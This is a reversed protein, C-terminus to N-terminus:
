SSWNVKSDLQMIRNCLLYMTAIMMMLMTMMGMQSYDQMHFVAEQELIALIAWPTWTGDHVNWTSIACFMHGSALKSQRDEVTLCGNAICIRRDSLLKYACLKSLSCHLNDVSRAMICHCCNCSWRGCREPKPIPHRPTMAKRFSLLKQWIQCSWQSVGAQTTQSFTSVAVAEYHPLDQHVAAQSRIYWM